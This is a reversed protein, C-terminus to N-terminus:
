ARLVPEGFAARQDDALPSHCNVCWGLPLRPWSAAFVPNTAAVAHRSASWEAVIAAHCPACDAARLGARPVPAEDVADLGQAAVAAHGLVALMTWRRVRPLQRRAAM